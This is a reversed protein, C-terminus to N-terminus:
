HPGLARAACGNGRTLVELHNGEAASACTRWDWVCRNGRCWRLLELHGGGAAAACTLGNWACGHHRACQLLDLRGLRAVVICVHATLPLGCLSNQSLQAVTTDETVARTTPPRQGLAEKLFQEDDVLEVLCSAVDSQALPFSADM